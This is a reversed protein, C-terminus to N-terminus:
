LKILNYHNGPLADNILDQILNKDSIMDISINM